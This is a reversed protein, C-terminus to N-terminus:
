QSNFCYNEGKILIVTVFVQVRSNIFSSIRVKMYADTDPDPVIGAQKERRSVEKM